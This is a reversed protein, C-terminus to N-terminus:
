RETQGVTIKSPQAETTGGPNKETCIDPHCLEFFTNHRFRITFLKPKAMLVVPFM